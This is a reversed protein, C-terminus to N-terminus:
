FGRGGIQTVAALGPDCVTRRAPLRPQPGIEVQEPHLRRAFRDFALALALVVHSTRHLVMHASGSAPRVQRTEHPDASENRESM